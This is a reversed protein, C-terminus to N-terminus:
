YTDGPSRRDKSNLGDDSAVGRVELIYVRPRRCPWSYHTSIEVRALRHVYTLFRRIKIIMAKSVYICRFIAMPASM